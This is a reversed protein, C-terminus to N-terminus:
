APKNFALTDEVRWVLNVATGVADPTRAATTPQEVSWTLGEVDVDYQILDGVYTTRRIVGEVQNTQQDPDPRAAGLRIRHPRVMVEIPGSQARTLQLEHRGVKVRTGAAIGPLRNIRGVFSAVFPNVPHEYLDLPTGLQELRGANM